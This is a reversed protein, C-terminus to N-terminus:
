RKLIPIICTNYFNQTHKEISYNNKAHEWGTHALKMYLCTDKKLQLIKEALDTSSGDFLLGTELHTIIEGTGAKHLGIVPIGYSMAEVSVRGFAEHKSCVLVCDATLYFDDVSAVHGVLTVKQALDNKFIYAEIPKTDGAGIIYLHFQSDIKILENLAQLATLQGKEKRIAGIIALTFVASRRQNRAQSRLSLNKYYEEETGIGNYIVDSKIKYKDFYYAQISKSNAVIVKASRCAAKLLKGKFDQVVNYDLDGFERLYVIFPVRVFLSFIAPFSFVSTNIYILDPQVQQLLDIGHKVQRINFLLRKIQERFREGRSQVTRQLPLVSYSIDRTVLLNELPGQQPLIILPAVKYHQKLSAALDVLSRSAGYLQADHSFFVITITKNRM